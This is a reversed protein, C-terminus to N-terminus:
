DEENGRGDELGAPYGRDFGNIDGWKFGVEFIKGADEKSIHKEDLDERNSSYWKDFDEECSATM